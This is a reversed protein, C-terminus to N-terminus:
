GGYGVVTGDWVYEPCFRIAFSHLIYNHNRTYHKKVTPVADWGEVPKQEGNSWSCGGYCNKFTWCPQMHFSSM